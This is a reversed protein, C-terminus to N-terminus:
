PNTPGEPEEDASTDSREISELRLGMRGLKERAERLDAELEDWTLDDLWAHRQAAYDGAGPAVQQLFRIYGVPGLERALVRLGVLKIEQDTM